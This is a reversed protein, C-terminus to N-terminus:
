CALGSGILDIEEDRNGTVRFAAWTTPGGEVLLSSVGHFNESTHLCHEWLTTFDLLGQARPVQWFTVGRKQLVQAYEQEPNETVIITKETYDDTVVKADLSIRLDPDLIIRYPSYMKQVSHRVTLEPDDTLVTQVGVVIADHTARVHAHSWNDQAQSTIKLKSGDENVFEGERTQASKLTIYPRKQKIVSVFGRNIRRCLEPTIPGIVEVGAERLRAIGQGAVKPNPDQMGYVVTKIGKQIIIDTCPPTKGTHCCPELNVYLVDAPQVEIGDLLEVEAHPQGWGRHYGEAIIQNDRVLVAGVKPNLGTYQSQAALSLCHQIYQLHNM